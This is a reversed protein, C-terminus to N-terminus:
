PATQRCLISFLRILLTRILSRAFSNSILDRAIRSMRGSSPTAAPLRMGAREFAVLRFLNTRTKARLQPRCRIGSGPKGTVARGGDNGLDIQRVDGLGAIHQLGNLGLLLFLLLLRTVRTHRGLGRGRRLRRGCGLNASRGCRGRGSGGSRRTRLRALDNGLRALGRRDGGWRGSRRGNGAM